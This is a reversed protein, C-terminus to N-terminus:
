PTPISLMLDHEVFYKHSIKVLQAETPHEIFEWSIIQVLLHPRHKAVYHRFDSLSTHSGAVVIQEIGVLEDCM